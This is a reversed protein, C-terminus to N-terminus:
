DVRRVIMKTAPDYSCGDGKNNALLSIAEEIIPLPAIFWERPHHMEGKDDRVDFEVNSAGFFQHIADELAPVDLNYCRTTSVVEVDSMLYTPEHRANKIRTTVDGSCYGIKYLNKTQRIQPNRSLSRLVYIYGCQVDESTIQKTDQDDAVDSISFGDHQMAKVLSRFLMTSETGNDFICRTRGDKRRYVEGAYTKETMESNNIAMYLLVGRLVYYRGEELDETKFPILKRKGTALDQHIHEFAGEYLEFDKCVKRRAIYDPRIRETPKVHSLTFISETEEDVELLRLPDYAIMDELPVDKVTEGRLLNYLDYEKLVKVKAPDAKLGELRSALTFEQVNDSEASPIRGNVEYFDVIERFKEILQADEPKSHKKEETEDSLLGLTDSDFISAFREERMKPDM